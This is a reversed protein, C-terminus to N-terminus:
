QPAQYRDPRSSTKIQFGVLRLEAERAVLLFNIILLHSLCTIVTCKALWLLQLMLHYSFGTEM